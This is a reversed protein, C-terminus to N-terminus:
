FPVESVVGSLTLPAISKWDVINSSMAPKGGAAVNVAVTIHPIKNKSPYGSVKVAIAMDSMGLEHVVLEVPKDLETPDKLPGMNITMHHAYTKWGDPIQGGVAHLLKEHSPQDLLVASYSIKKNELYQTFKIM